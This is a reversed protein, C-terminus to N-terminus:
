SYSIFTKANSFLISRKLKGSIGKFKKIFDSLLIPSMVAFNETNLKDQFRCILEIISERGTNIREVNLEDLINTNFEDNISEVRSTRNSMVSRLSFRSKTNINNNSANLVSFEGREALQQNEKLFISIRAYADKITNLDIKKYFNVKENMQRFFKKKKLYENKDLSHIWDYLKQIDETVISTIIEKPDYSLNLLLHHLIKGIAKSLVVCGNHFYTIAKDAKGLIKELNTKEQKRKEKHIKLEQEFNNLAESFRQNKQKNREIEQKQKECTDKFSDLQTMLEFKERELKEVKQRLTDRKLDNSQLSEM